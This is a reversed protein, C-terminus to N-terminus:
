RQITLQTEIGVPLPPRLESLFLYFVIPYQKISEQSCQKVNRASTVNVDDDDNTRYCNRCFCFRFIKEEKTGANFNSLMTLQSKPALVQETHNYWPLWSSCRTSKSQFFRNTKHQSSAIRDICFSTEPNGPSDTSLFVKRRPEFCVRYRGWSNSSFPKKGSLRTASKRSHIWTLKTSSAKKRSTWHVTHRRSTAFFSWRRTSSGSADRVMWQTRLRRHCRTVQADRMPPSATM